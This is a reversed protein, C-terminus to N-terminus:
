LGVREAWEAVSLREGNFTVRRTWRKNRSQDRMTAWCCNRPSYGGNNNKREITAGLGPRPGMDAFFNEFKAWRKCVKIGRGRYDNKERCRRHMQVWTKYELSSQGKTTHGHTTRRRSAEEKMLCGCSRSARDDSRLLAEAAVEQIAGCLCRCTWYTRGNRSPAREKVCWRGIQQGRLDKLRV